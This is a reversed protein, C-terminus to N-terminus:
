AKQVIQAYGEIATYPGDVLRAQAADAGAAADGSIGFVNYETRNAIVAGTGPDTTPVIYPQLYRYAANSGSSSAAPAPLPLPVKPLAQTPDTSAAAPTAAPTATTSPITDLTVSSSDLARTVDYQPPMDSPVLIPGIKWFANINSLAKEVTWNPLSLAKNPLIVSYAHVPLFPDMIAGFVQMNLAQNVVSDGAKGASNFYPTFLPFNNAQASISIRPDGSQSPPTTSPYYTYVTALDLDSNGNAMIVPSLTTTASNFYGILGDFTRDKDGLKVPFTYGGGAKPPFPTGDAQLLHLDPGQSNVTSWNTNEPGALELSYGINVLALPKGIITSSFTAYSSPAAVQSKSTSQLIMDVFAALYSKNSLKQILFDLQLTSPLTSPPDYPLWKATTETGASGGFRVERYFTGDALFIQM